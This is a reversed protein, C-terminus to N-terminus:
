QLPSDEADGREFIVEAGVQQIVIDYIVQKDNYVRKSPVVIIGDLEAENIANFRDQETPNDTRIYGMKRMVDCWADVLIDAMEESLDSEPNIQVRKFKPKNEFSM